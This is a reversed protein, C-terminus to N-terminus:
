LIKKINQLTIKLQNQEDEKRKLDNEAKNQIAMQTRIQRQTDMGKLAEDMTQQVGFLHQEAAQSTIVPRPSLQNPKM